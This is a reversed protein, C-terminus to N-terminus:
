CLGDADTRKFASLRVADAKEKWQEFIPKANAPLTCPRAAVAKGGRLLEARFTYAVRSNNTVTMTTGMVARVSVIIQGTAPKASSAVKHAGVPQGNKLIFAWTEGTRVTLPAAQAPVAAFLLLAAALKM